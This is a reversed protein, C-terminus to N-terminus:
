SSFKRRRKTTQKNAAKQPIEREFAEYAYRIRRKLNDDNENDSKLKELLGRRTALLAIADKSGPKVTPNARLIKIARKMAPSLERGGRQPAQQRLVEALEILARNAAREERKDRAKQEDGRRLAARAEDLKIRDAELQAFRARWLEAMEPTSFPIVPGSVIRDEDDIETRDPPPATPKDTNKAM